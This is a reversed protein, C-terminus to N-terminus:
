LTLRKGFTFIEFLNSSLQNSQNCCSQRVKIIILSTKCQWVQTQSFVLFRQDQFFHQDQFFNPDQFFYSDWFFNLDWFFKPGSFFKPGPFFKPGFFIQTRFFIQTKFFHPDQFFNPDPFFDLRDPPHHSPRFITGVEDWLGNPNKGCTRTHCYLTIQINIM